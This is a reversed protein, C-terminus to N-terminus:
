ASCRQESLIEYSPCDVITGQPGAVAMFQADFFYTDVNGSVENLQLAVYGITCDEYCIKNPSFGEIQPQQQVAVTLDGIASLLPGFDVDVSVDGALIDAISCAIGKVLKNSYENILSRIKRETFGAM